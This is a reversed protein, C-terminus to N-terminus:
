GIIFKMLLSFLTDLCWLLAATILVVLIVQWSTNVTEAKTPWIVRRLEIRSDKLLQVFAKGQQTVYLLALAVVVCGVIVGIRVWIDNAAVWYKPLLTNGMVAVSLLALAVGWLVIDLPSKQKVVEAEYKQHSKKTDINSSKNSM